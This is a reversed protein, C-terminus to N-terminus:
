CITWKCIPECFAWKEITAGFLPKGFIVITKYWEGNGQKIRGEIYTGIFTIPWGGDIQVKIKM